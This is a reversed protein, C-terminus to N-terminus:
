RCCSCRGGGHGHGRQYTSGHGYSRGGYYVNRTTGRSSRVPRWHPRYTHRVPPHVVVPRRYVVPPRHYVVPPRHHVVPPPCTPRGYVVTPRHHPRALADFVVLGALVKGAVAWERDGAVAQGGMGGVLVAGTVLIVIAKKM